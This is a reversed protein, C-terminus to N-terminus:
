ACNRQVTSLRAATIVDLATAALVFALAARATGRQPNSPRDLARLVALDFIDGGVRAWLVGAKTPDGALSYGSWMERLGFLARVLGPPAKVGLAHAVQRPFFTGMVGLGIATVGIAGAITPTVAPAARVRDTALRMHKRNPLPLTMQPSRTFNELAGGM